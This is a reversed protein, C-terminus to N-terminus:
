VPLTMNVSRAFLAPDTFLGQEMIQLSIPWVLAPALNNLLQLRDRRGIIVGDNNADVSLQAANVISFPKLGIKEHQRTNQAWDLNPNKKNELICSNRIFTHM